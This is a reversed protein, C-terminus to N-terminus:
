NGQAGLYFFTEHARSCLQRMEAYWRDEAEALQAVSLGTIKVWVAIYREDPIEGDAQMSVSMFRGPFTRRTMELLPELYQGLSKEEAFALVDPPCAWPRARGPVTM